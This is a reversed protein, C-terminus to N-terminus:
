PPFVYASFVDFGFAGGLPNTLGAKEAEHYHDFMCVEEDANTLPVVSKFSQTYLMVFYRHKMGPQPPSSNM